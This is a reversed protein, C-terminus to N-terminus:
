INCKKSRKLLENLGYAGYPILFMFYQYLYIAKTEWVAHFLFGGFVIVGLLLNNFETKSRMFLYILIGISIYSSTSDWIEYLIDNGVGGIISETIVNKEIKSYQAFTEYEPNAFSNLFKHAYFKVMYDPHMRWEGLVGSIFNKAEIKTYESNFNNQYHYHELYNFYRGPHNEEYNVGYALWCIRPLKNDYNTGVRNEYYKVVGTTCVFITAILIPVYLFYKKNSERVFDVFIFILEAVLIILSNNKIAISATVTIGSLVLSLAKRDEFYDLLYYVSVIGLSYSIANGYVFFSIFILQMSLFMLVIELKNVNENKFLVDTTRYLYLYGMLSFVLNIIRIAHLSFNGFLKIILYFYTVLGLNHPYTNIYSKFGLWSYDGFSMRLATNYCNYADDYEMLDQPNILIWTIGVIFGMILFIFMMEKSSLNFFQKRYLVLLLLGLAFFVLIQLPSTIFFIANDNIANFQRASFFFNGVFFLIAFLTFSYKAINQALSFFRNKM